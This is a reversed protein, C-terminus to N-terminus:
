DLNSRLNKFFGDDSKLCAALKNLDGSCTRDNVVVPFIDRVADYLGKSERSLKSKVGRADVAQTLVALEIALLIFANDVVQMTLLASDAGMSVIDQNDGNTPISHVRQPYAFMQSQAATSTAVFQIGQLALTLGPTKLNLFPPLNGNIKDNLFFNIRRESLMTLKVLAARLEDMAAAVYEGHFNGGHLFESTEVSLVPNDTVSNVEIEVSRRAEALTDLVPGLIQPVCRISYVEQITESVGRVGNGSETRVLGRRDRLLASSELLNRMARAVAVQGAHPRLDHLVSSVGDRYGDVLELSLAGTRTALNLIRSSHVCAFAAVGSMFSTGNIMSLGEKSKFQYPNLNLKKLFAPDLTFIKGDRWVEGEGMLALAIHALQVLDGSTGVAGHEPVVPIVRNNILGALAEVLGHSVGSYGKVLTNLRIVMAALVFGADVPKGMGAAHSRVLNEQLRSLEERGVMRSAMPGFGTNVGYIVRINEEKELFRRASEVLEFNHSPIEVKKNADRVFNYIDEVGLNEGDLSLVKGEM